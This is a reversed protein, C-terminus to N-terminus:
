RGGAAPRLREALRAVALLRAATAEFDGFNEHRYVSYGSPGSGASVYIKAFDIFM